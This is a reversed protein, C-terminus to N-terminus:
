WSIHFVCEGAGHDVCGGPGHEVVADPNFRRCCGHIVGRSLSCPFPTAFTVLATHEDEFDCLIHGIAPGRANMHYAHDLSDLVSRIDTIGPPFQASDIMALGVTYLSREGIQQGVTYYISRATNLDYWEDADIAVLGHAALIERILAESHSLGRVFSQLAAGLYQGEFHQM